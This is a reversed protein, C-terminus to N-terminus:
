KNDQPSQKSTRPRYNEEEKNSPHQGHQGAWGRENEVDQRHRKNEDKLPQTTKTHQPM